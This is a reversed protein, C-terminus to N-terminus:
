PTSTTTPLVKDPAPGYWWGGWFPFPADSIKWGDGTKVLSATRPERYTSDFLGSGGRLLTVEVLASQGNAEVTAEGIEVATDTIARGQNEILDRQFEPLNLGLSASDLYAYAREYEGNQLALIYNQLVGEPTSEDAYLDQGQRVFFLVLALLVLAGIGILIGTLFRDRPM